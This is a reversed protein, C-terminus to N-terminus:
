ASDRIVLEVPMIVSTPEDGDIRRLLQTTLQGAFRQWPIRVTTLRPRSTTAIAADDYGVVAIDEPVRRGARQLATLTGAAMMDSAAFIADLDPAQRLLQEAAAAGSAYTYDGHAILAPDYSGIADRYGALREVGGPLDMPGTVTAIRQRGRSRLYSVIQRAGDRDDTGVYSVQREYGLPTGCAVAPIQRDVLSEVATSARPASFLLVPDDLRAALKRTVTDPPGDTAVPTVMMINQDGLARLCDLLLANVNPDTLLRQAPTCHLFAVTDPRSGALRRAHHNPVYGTSSIAQEVARRSGASAAQGNLVRSVTGASVGAARAVEYITVRGHPAAGALGPRSM